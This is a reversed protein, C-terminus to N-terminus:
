KELTKMLTNILNDILKDEPLWPFEPQTILLSTLGHIATWFIQSFMAIDEETFKEQKVCENITNQLFSFARENMTGQQLVPCEEKKFNYDIVLMIKYLQPHELATKIYARLGKRLNEYPNNNGQRDIEEFREVFKSFAYEIVSFVLDAKNKFYLYITTPSYEIKNALRRMSFKEYGDKLLMTITTQM